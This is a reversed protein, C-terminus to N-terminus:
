PAGDASVLRGNVMVSTSGRASFPVRGVTRVVAAAAVDFLQEGRLADAFTTTPAGSIITRRAAYGLYFAAADSRTAGVQSPCGYGGMVTPWACTHHFGLAHLLEHTILSRNSLFSSTLIRSKAALMNQSSDWIWNTYGAFGALTNDISVLVAKQSYGNADPPTLDSLTAPKFLSRGIDAEMQRIVTWLAVSDADTIAGTSAPRNFALPVPLDAESWLPVLTKWVQPFFSNCNANADDSCVRTFAQQLSVVQSTAGYTTSTFTSTRPILMPRASVAAARSAPVRADIPRYTRTGSAVDIVLDVSDAPQAALPASLTFAGTADMAASFSQAGAGAGTQATFRLTGPAGGDATVVRGALPTPAVVSVNTTGSISQATATITVVGARVGTVVGTASVSAISADSSTFTVTQGPIPAGSADRAVATVQATGAIAVLMPSPTVSVTPGSANTVTIVASDSRGESTATITVTGPAVAVVLGTTSVSAVASNSSSWTITRGSLVNGASDKAVASLQLSQGTTMSSRVGSLEVLAVPPPTVTLAASGSVGDVTASIVGNGPAVGTVVGSRSITAISTPAAAWLTTRGTILTGAADRAAATVTTTSGTVISQSGLTVDVRAVTPRNTGGGEGGGCAAALVAAIIL